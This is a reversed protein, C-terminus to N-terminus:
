AENYDPKPFSFVRRELDSTYEYAIADPSTTRRLRAEVDPSGFAIVLAFEAPLTTRASWRVVPASVRVGYAPSYEGTEIAREWGADEVPVLALAEAGGRALVVSRRAEVQLGPGFHWYIDLAHAGCGAAVDRVLWLGPGFGLVWRRHTVPEPLREYGSHSAEFLGSDEGDTWQRVEVRPRPGWAFPGMPEAQHLGDVTLTNHAPTGRFYEREPGPAVYAFTGPDALWLRGGAALQVSLADAHGHGAALAGLEGADIFLQGPPPGSSAMSYIGAAPLAVSRVPPAIAPIADFVAEGEPGLLWLAEEHFGPAAAKLAADRYLAAGTSLPDRMHEPRNRSPDFLRGGDDDGFRPAAGAQTLAALASLMKEIVRDLAEPVAVGNRGAMIRAHLFFDLAYVHYYISQEFHLGDDRVQRVSENLVIEWGTRRWEAAGPLGPYRVGILFLAAGEGLLHTNPSFYTSLYRQIYWAARAIECTLDRRFAASGAPTEELLFDVWLWSLARFAVELASAWNVGVPYPNGARWDYWLEKLGAAFREEGTIRYAKALTVLFQHRNLEWIVKHDGVAEFNLFDIAPWPKSPARRGHVPDLSWDIDRGFDLDTYGLLDFRRDLIRGARSVIQQAQGPMRRSLIGTIEPVDAPDRFFRGRADFAASAPVPQSPDIGLRYLAVDGYKCAQQHARTWIERWGMGSLRRLRRALAGQMAASM